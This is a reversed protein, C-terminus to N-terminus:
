AEDASFFSETGAESSAASIEGMRTERQIREAGKRDESGNPFEIAEVSRKM